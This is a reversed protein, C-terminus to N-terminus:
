KANDFDVRLAAVEFDFISMAFREVAFGGFKASSRLLDCFPEIQVVKNIKTISILGIISQDFLECHSFTYEGEVSVNRRQSPRLARLPSM